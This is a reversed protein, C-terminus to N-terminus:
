RNRRNLIMRKMEDCYKKANEYSDFLYGEEVLIKMHGYFADNRNLKYEIIPNNNEDATARISLIRWRAHDVDYKKVSKIESIMGKCKCEPCDFKKNKYFFYGNGDCFTCTTPNGLVTGKNKYVRYVEQGIEFKTRIHLDM